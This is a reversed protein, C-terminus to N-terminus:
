NDRCLGPRSPMCCRSSPRSGPGSRQAKGLSWRWRPRWRRRRSGPWDDGPRKRRGRLQVPEAALPSGLGRRERRAGARLLGDLRLADEAYQRLGADCRLVGRLWRPMTRGTDLARQIQYELFTRIM